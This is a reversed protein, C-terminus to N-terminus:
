INRFIFEVNSQFEEQGKLIDNRYSNFDVIHNEYNQLCSEIKAIINPIESDIDDFKYCDKISVDNSYRASGRKGTIVCCGLIAAERPIRDKGPHNGFDIYVKSTGLKVIMQAPTLNTLAEWEINSANKIIKNTFSWGKKPNYLVVSKRKNNSSYINSELLFDLDLYDSLFMIKKEDVGQRKLFDKAYYSQVFHTINSKRFDYPFLGFFDIIINRKSKLSKFYNDVSMWWIVKQAKQVKRLLNVNTEPTVVINQVEDEIRLVYPLNFKKYNENVPNDKKQGYGFYYYMYASYGQQILEYCLQHALTLGGTHRHALCAVYIKRM